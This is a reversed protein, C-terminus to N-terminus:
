INFKNVSKDYHRFAIRRRPNSTSNDAEKESPSQKSNSGSFRSIQSLYKKYNKDEPFHLTLVM